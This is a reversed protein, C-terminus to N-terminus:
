ISNLKGLIEDWQAKTLRGRPGHGSGTLIDLLPQVGLSSGPPPSPPPIDSGSPISPLGGSGGSESDSFVEQPPEDQPPPPGEPPPEPPGEPPFPGESPKPSNADINCIEM